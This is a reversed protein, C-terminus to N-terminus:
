GGFQANFQKLRSELDILQSDNVQSVCARLGETRDSGTTGLAIASIGFYILKELLTGGSMGPYSFTFYFGDALPVTDDKDYVINFGNDLFLQKMRKARAGYVKVYQVFDFSGENAAKLMAALGYQASHTVGSSLAYLAGFVTSYGYQRSNYWSELDDFEREFLKDSIVLSGIRQGAYSFAKSSSILFVYNDTYKAVTPQYPAEGPVGYNHRFDMAFYALDEIVIVDYKDALEGIIQLEQDTFCIWSPNNPNSYLISSYNGKQLHSELAGRLREGRYNYVDFSGYSQGLVQLQKKQVPFGPDIFLTGSREKHTRNAVMFTAIAGQMSGVTPLCSRPQVDVDMFCKCFNSIEQKLIPLGDLMPYKAAVGEKLAKIEANIGVEPPLLGPVGMEMRIYTKGSQQEIDNVLKVLERISALGVSALGSAKIQQEVIDADIPSQHFETAITRL